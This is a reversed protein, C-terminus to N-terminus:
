KNELANLTMEQKRVSETPLARALSNGKKGRDADWKKEMGPKVFNLVNAATM